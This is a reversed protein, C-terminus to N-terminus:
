QTESWATYKQTTVFPGSPTYFRIYFRGYLRAERYYLFYRHSSILAARRTDRIHFGYHFLSFTVGHRALNLMLSNWHGIDGLHLRFYGSHLHFWLPGFQYPKCNM